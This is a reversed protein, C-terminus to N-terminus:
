VVLDKMLLERVGDQVILVHHLLTVQLFHGILFLHILLRGLVLLCDLLQIRSCMVGSRAVICLRSDV